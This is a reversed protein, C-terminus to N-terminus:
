CAKYGKKIWDKGREWRMTTTSETGDAQRAATHYGIWASPRFCVHDRPVQALLLLCASACYVVVLHTGHVAYQYGQTLHELLSGGPDNIVVSM